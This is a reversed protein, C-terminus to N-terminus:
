AFAPLYKAVPADFDLLGREFLIMLSPTTAVVKTLSAADFITDLTLSETKPTVSRNGYAKQYVDGHRELWLVGGPLKNSSISHIITQDMEALKEPFFAGAARAHDLRLFLALALLFVRAPSM